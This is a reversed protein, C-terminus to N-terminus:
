GRPAEASPVAVPMARKPSRDAVLAVGPPPTALWRKIAPMAEMAAKEGAEILNKASAFSDWAMHAVPPKIVVNSYRRWENETRASMLQFCRSLVSFMNGFDASGEQNPIAISIV